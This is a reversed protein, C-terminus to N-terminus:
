RDHALLYHLVIEEPVIMGKPLFIHSPVDISKLDDPNKPLSIM